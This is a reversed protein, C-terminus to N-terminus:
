PGMSFSAQLILANLNTVVVSPSFLQHDLLTGDNTGSDANAFVGAETVAWTIPPPPFYFLWTALAAISSSAPSAAGAQVQERGLEAYLQTDTKAVTGTGSGVAGWLPTLYTPTAVGINPAQDQIGSWVLASAFTSYGNTTIINAGERRDVENGQADVVILALRGYIELSEHSGLEM